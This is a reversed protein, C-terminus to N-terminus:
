HGARLNGYELRGGMQARVSQRERLRRFEAKLGRPLSSKESRQAFRGIERQLVERVSGRQKRRDHRGGREGSIYWTSVM